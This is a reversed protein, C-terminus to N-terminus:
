ALRLVKALVIAGVGIALLEVTGMGSSPPPTPNPASNSVDGTSATLAAVSIWGRAGTPLDGPGHVICDAFFNSVPGMVLVPAGPPVNELVGAGTSPASRLPVNSTTAYQGPSLPAESMASSLSTLGPAVSLSPM